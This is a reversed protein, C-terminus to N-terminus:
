ICGYTCSADAAPVLAMLDVACQALWYLRLLPSEKMGRQVELHALLMSLLSAAAPALVAWWDGQQKLRPPIYTTPPLTHVHLM